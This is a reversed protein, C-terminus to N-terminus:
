AAAGKFTFRFTTGGEREVDVQAELQEAFTFVLDLGLGTARRPDLDPPLGVGDDGVSLEVQKDDRARLRIAIAGSRGAPFAYKLANTVLENIILGCPIAVDVDLRAGEVEIHPSIGREAARQSFFLNAVLTWVYEEFDIKSLDKAQHLKEHVLAISRVRGQSEQFLARAHEDTIHQAQLNLLSSIVQLNNKVRHNIEKLLVDKERVSRALTEHASTLERTRSEVREELNRGLTRLEEVLMRSREESERLAQVMRAHESWMWAREAAAQVLSVEAPQWARPQSTAATLTAVWQGGRMLPVNIRARLGRPEYTTAYHPATHPDRALDATVMTRGAAAETRTHADIATLPLSDISASTGYGPHLLMREEAPQNESFFCRGLHLHEGLATSVRRLVDDPDEGLAAEQGLDFLFRRDGEARQRAIDAAGQYRANWLVMGTVMAASVVVMLALGFETGYWGARQGQLRFWGLLLPLGVVMPILRRASAGAATEQMLVAIMGRDPRAALVGAGLTMMGAAAHIAIQTATAAGYLSTAGYCYGVLAVFGIGLVCLGLAQALDLRGGLPRDDLRALAIGILAFALAANPAMRGPSATGPTGYAEHFLLQDLHLDLGVAYEILTATGVASVLLALVRAVGRRRPDLTAALQLRLSLGALLFCAAANPKMSVAHPLISKLVGVDLTWGALVAAGLLIALHSALRALQLSRPTAAPLTPASKEAAPAPSNVIHRPDV